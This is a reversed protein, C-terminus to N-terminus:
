VKYLRSDKYHSVGGAFCVPGYIFHSRHRQRLDPFLFPHDARFMITPPPPPGSSTAMASTLVAVVTVAAAETGRETVDLYTQHLVQSLYLDRAGNMGSFDAGAAGDAQPMPERFADKMGLAQLAGALGYDGRLTFKPLYTKVEFQPAGLAELWETLKEATLSKEIAELGDNVRPLLVVFSINDANADSASDTLRYPLALIQLAGGGNPLSADAYGVEDVGFQHYMTPIKAEGGVSLHFPRDMTSRNIFPQKWSGKFYIADALVLRTSSDM